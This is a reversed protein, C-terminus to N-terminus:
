AADATMVEIATQRSLIARQLAREVAAAMSMNDYPLFTRPQTTPQEVTSPQQVCAIVAAALSDADESPVLYDIGPWAIEAVGGVDTAVFPTNCAISELLVNPIGESRSTLVIANAANYYSALQRQNMSPLIELVDQLGLQQSRQILQRRLSGDGIMKVQLRRNWQQKWRVAAALLLAPNKVEELRGVWLVVVADETIQCKRRACAQQMPQFCNRDIGRYVVDIKSQHVGLSEARVALERSVVILREAQGLTEQIKAKRSATKTLIRLDTGGSMVVSPVGLYRAARNAASGDPHLFYGLVVDPKFSRSARQITRRISQWYLTAYHSRLIKPPYFYIPHHTLEDLASPSRVEHWQTWPIPAVVQVENSHRLSNVLVQNFAGQRPRTPTPYTTSLFLIRM